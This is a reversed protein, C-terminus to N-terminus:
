TSAGPPLPKVRPMVHSVCESLFSGGRRSYLYYGNFFSAEKVQGKYVVWVEVQDRNAVAEFEDRTQWNKEHNFLKNEVGQEYAYVVECAMEYSPTGIWGKVSYSVTGDTHGKVIIKAKNVAKKKITKM